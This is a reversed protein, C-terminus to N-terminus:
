LQARLKEQAKFRFDIFGIKKGEEDVFVVRYTFAAGELLLMAHVEVCEGAVVLRSCSVHLHEAIVDHTFLQRCLEVGNSALIVIPVTARPGFHGAMRRVDHLPIIASAHRDSHKRVMRLMIPDHYPSPEGPTWPTGFIRSPDPSKVVRLMREQSSIAYTCVLRAYPVDSLTCARIEATVRRKPYSCVTAHAVARLTSEHTDVYVVQM